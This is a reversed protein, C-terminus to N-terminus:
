WSVSAPDLRGDSITVRKAHAQATSRCSCCSIKSDTSANSCLSESSSNLAVFGTWAPTRPHDERAPDQAQPSLEPSSLMGLAKVKMQGFPSGVSTQTKKKDADAVLWRNFELASIENKLM